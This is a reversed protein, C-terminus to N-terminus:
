RYMHLRVTAVPLTLKSKDHFALELLAHQRRVPAPSLFFVVQSVECFLNCSKAEPKERYTHSQYKCDLVKTRLARPALPIQSEAFREPATM